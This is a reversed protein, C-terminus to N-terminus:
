SFRQSLAVRAVAAQIFLIGLGSSVAAVGLEPSTPHITTFQPPDHNAGHVDRAGSHNTAREHGSPSRQARRRGPSRRRTPVNAREDTSPSCQARRHSRRRWAETKHDHGSLRAVTAGNLVHKKSACGVAGGAFGVGVAGDM